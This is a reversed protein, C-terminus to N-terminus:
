RALWEVLAQKYADTDKGSNRADRYAHVFGEALYVDAGFAVEYANSTATPIDEDSGHVVLLTGGDFVADQLFLPNRAALEEDNRYEALREAKEIQSHPSYFDTPSYLAPTRLLLKKFNRFRTLWAAVYAGYSTGMVTLQMDPHEAQLWDFAMMAELVHQAPRVEDLVLPSEGHGSLDIALASMNAKQAVEVIFDANREKSSGYGMFVLLVSDSGQYSYWDAAIDYGVCPITVPTKQM